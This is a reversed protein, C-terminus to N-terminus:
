AFSSRFAPSAREGWGQIPRSGCMLLRSAALPGQVRALLAYRTMSATMADTMLAADFYDDRYAVTYLPRANQWSGIRALYDLASNVAPDARLQRADESTAVLASLAFATQGPTSPGVGALTHEQDARPTEGFGGDPNQKSRVWPAARAILDADHPLGMARLVPLVFPFTSLGGCIWRGQWAGGPLRSLRLFGVGRILADELDEQEGAGLAGSEKAVLLAGMVRGTVDATSADVLATELGFPSRPGFSYPAEHPEPSYGWGGDAQQGSLLARVARRIASAVEEGRAEDPGGYRRALFSLPMTASDNDGENAGVGFAWLGDPTQEELLRAVLAESLHPASPADCVLLTNSAVCSDWLEANCWSQRLRGDRGPRRLSHIFDLGRRVAPHAADMGRARLALLNLATGFVTWLWGGNRGQTRLVERELADLTASQPFGGLWELAADVARAWTARDAATELLIGIAPLAQRAFASIRGRLGRSWRAHLTLHILEAGLPNTPVERSRRPYVSDWLLDAIFDLFPSPTAWPHWQLWRRARLASDRIGRALRPVGALATANREAFVELALLAIRTADRAPPGGEYSSFAGAPGQGDVLATVLEAEITFRAASPAELLNTAILGTAVHVPGGEYLTRWLGDPEQQRALSELTSTLLPPSSDTDGPAALPLTTRM